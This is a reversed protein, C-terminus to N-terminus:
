DSVKPYSHIRIFIRFARAEIMERHLRWTMREDFIVDVYKVSNVFPISRGNFTLPSDPPRNRDTFYIVRTKEKNIKVNWGKCWAAMCNLGRQIKRMVYSEKRDTAYLCTDDPFHDLEVGPTQPTDNIYLNHMICNYKDSSQPVMAQMYRPTSVEGEVSVRFKWQTLFSSILKILNNSCKLKPLNYLLCPHWTTDFAKGINLFVAATSVNIKFNLTVHDTLWMCQLTTSHHAYFVFQSANLLNKEGIHRKVIELIVKEYVKGTSSLFSIPRLNQPFKPDKGPKPLAVVKAEKWSTSFHSLQICHNILHTLHVLPRRPLHRLCENPNGDIACAKKL